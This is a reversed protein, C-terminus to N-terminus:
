GAGAARLLRGRGRVTTPREAGAMCRDGTRAAMSALRAAPAEAAAAQLTPTLPTPGEADCVNTWMGDRAETSVDDLRLPDLLWAAEDGLVLRATAPIVAGLSSVV